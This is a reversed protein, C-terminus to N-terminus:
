RVMLNETSAGSTIYNDSPALTVTTDMNIIDNNFVTARVEVKEGKRVWTPLNVRVYFKSFTNLELPDSTLALESDKRVAFASVMWSTVSDPLTEVLTLKGQDDTTGTNWLWTDPFHTRESPDAVPGGCEMVSDGCDMVIDGCDMVIDGCDMVIDGCDMVIDGCDM